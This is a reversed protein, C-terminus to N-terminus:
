EEVLDTYFAERVWQNSGCAAEAEEKTDFYYDISLSDGELVYVVRRMSATGYSNKVMKFKM